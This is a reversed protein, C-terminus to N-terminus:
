SKRALILGAVLGVGAAAAVSRWPNEKVYSDASSAMERVAVRAGAHAEQAKGLATDLMQMGKGRAEEAKEGTLGSAANFLAQADKVLVKIDNNIAHMNKELM